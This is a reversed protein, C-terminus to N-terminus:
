HFGLFVQYIGLYLGILHVDPAKTGRVRLPVRSTVKFSARCSGCLLGFPEEVPVFRWHRFGDGGCRLLM